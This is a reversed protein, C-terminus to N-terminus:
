RSEDGEHAILDEIKKVMDFGERVGPDEHFRLKPTQRLRMLGALQSQIFGAANQLGAVGKALGAQSKYSSVYVDAYSLDKSM